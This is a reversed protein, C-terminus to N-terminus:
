DIAPGTPHPSSLCVLRRAGGWRRSHSIASAESSGLPPREAETARVVGAEYGAVSLQIASFVLLLSAAAATVICVWRRSRHGMKRQFDTLLGSGNEQTKAQDPEGVLRPVDKRRVGLYAPQPDELGREM